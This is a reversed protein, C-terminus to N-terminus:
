ANSPLIIKNSSTKKYTKKGKVINSYGKWCSTKKKAFPSNTQSYGM